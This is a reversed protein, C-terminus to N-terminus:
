FAGVCRVGVADVTLSGGTAAVSCTHTFAVTIDNTAHLSTIAAEFPVTLFNGTATGNITVPNGGTDTYTITFTDSVGAVCNYYAFFTYTGTNPISARPITLTLTSPTVTPLGAAKCTAVTGNNSGYANTPNTPATGATTHSTAWTFSTASLTESPTASTDEYGSVGATITETQGAVTEPYTAAIAFLPTDTQGALTEPLTVRAHLGVTDTMGGSGGGGGTTIQVRRLTM